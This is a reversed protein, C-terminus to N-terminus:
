RVDWWLELDIADGGMNAIAADLNEQNVGREVTSPYNIRTPMYGDTVGKSYMDSTRQEIVPYGTRRITNWSEYASPVFSIWLQTAIQRFSNEQDGYLSAEVENALFEVILTDAIDWQDMAMTIGTQYLDNADGPGLGFLAAEARLLYIESACMMYMAQDRALFEETALSSSARSWSSYYSDTLGNPMGIYEDSSSKTAFFPLRPDNTDNLANIIKESWNMTYIGGQYDIIKNYWPNYLDGNESDQMELKVNQTNDEILDEQLCDDIISNYTGPDAFRARMALRFRLSNGFRIWKQRDGAFIPDEGSSYIESDSASKLVTIADLLRNVMDDYIVEQADYSPKLIDYKGMGGEFYPIDGFFDTMRSFNLVAIISAQAYRAPNEFEGGPGTLQLVEIVNRIPGNYIAHFIRESIDGQSQIDNYKDVERNWNNSVWIHAYQGGYDIDFREFYDRFTGRVANTFLYEDPLSSLQNPDTNMEEWREDCAPFLLLAILLALLSKIGIKYNGMTKMM